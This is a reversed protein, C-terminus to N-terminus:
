TLRNALMRASFAGCARFTATEHVPWSPEGGAQVRRTYTSTPRHPPRKLIATGQEPADKPERREPSGAARFVEVRGAGNRRASREPCLHVADDAVAHRGLREVLVQRPRREVADAVLAGVPLERVLDVLGGEGARDLT